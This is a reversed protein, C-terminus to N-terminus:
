DHTMHNHGDTPAHRKLQQYQEASMGPLQEIFAVMSWVEQDNHTAGFSPMGTMKVGHKVIWFLQRSSWSKVAASLLPAQPNLGKGIESRELGPGGHCTICMEDYHEFGDKILEDTFPPPERVGSAKAVVMLEMATRLVQQEFANHPTSAAIDFQGSYFYIAGGFALLALATIFGVIFRM